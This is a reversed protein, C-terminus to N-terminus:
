PHPSQVRGLLTTSQQGCRVLSKRQAHKNTRQLNPLVPSSVNSHPFLKKTSRREGLLVDKSELVVAGRSPVLVEDGADSTGHAEGELRM